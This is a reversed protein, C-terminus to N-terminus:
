REDTIWIADVINADHGNGTADYLTDGAGEDFQYVALANADPELMFPPTFEEPYRVGRSIRVAYIHGDFFRNNQDTPLRERPVGGIYLGGHTEPLTFPIPSTPVATGNVYLRLASGDWIGAVHFIQDPRMRDDSALLLSQGEHLRSIGFRGEHSLFLAMWEPGLWSLINSTQATRYSVVAELTVPQTPDPVLSPTAAYSSWGNFQLSPGTKWATSPSPPPQTTQGADVNGDNDAGNDPDPSPFWPWIALGLVFIGVAVGAIIQRRPVIGPIKQKTKRQPLPPEQLEPFGENMAAPASPEDPRQSGRSLRSSPSKQQWAEIAQAVEAMSSFREDPRKAVMKEFIEVLGALQDDPLARRLEPIPEHVHALITDVVTDGRYAPRGTLLFYLTCGLSYIDSRADANKTNRAQEPSMYAATGIVMGSATLDSSDQP